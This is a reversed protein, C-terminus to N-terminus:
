PGNQRTFNKEIRCLDRYAILFQRRNAVNLKKYINKCHFHVGSLSLFLVEAIQVMTMDTLLLEFVEMEKPSLTSLEPYVALLSNFEEKALRIYEFLKAARDTRDSM